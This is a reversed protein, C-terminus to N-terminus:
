SLLTGEHCSFVSPCPDAPTRVARVTLHPAVSSNQSCSFTHTHTHTHPCKPCHTHKSCTTPVHPFLSFVDRSMLVMCYMCCGCSIWHLCRYSIGIQKADVHKLIDRGGERRREKWSTWYNVSLTLRSQSLLPRVLQCHIWVSSDFHLPIYIRYIEASVWFVSHWKPSVWCVNTYMSYLVHACGFVDDPGLTGECRGAEWM